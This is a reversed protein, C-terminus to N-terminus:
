NYNIYLTKHVRERSAEVLFIGAFAKYYLNTQKLTGISSIIIQARYIKKM